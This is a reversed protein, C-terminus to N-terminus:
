TLMVIKGKAQNSEMYRHADVIQDLSFVKDVNSKIEGHEVLQIFEQFSQTAFRMQGSDFITM